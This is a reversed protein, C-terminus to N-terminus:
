CTTWWSPRTPFSSASSRRTRSTASTGCRSTRWRRRRTRRAGRAGSRQDARLHGSQAQAAHGVLGEAERQFIRGGRASRHTASPSDRHRDQGAHLCNGGADCRLVRPSRASDGALFGGRRETGPAPLDERRVGTRPPGRQGGSGLTQRRADARGGDRLARHQAADGLVLQGAEARLHDARRSHRPHPRDDAHGQVGLRPAEAGRAVEEPGRSHHGVGAEGAPGARHGGRRQLDARLAALAVGPRGKRRGRHHLCHRRAESRGRDPQHAGPRLGGKERIAKAAAQPVIGAEALTETAAVEVELWTRFKNEDSWIHGMEPRTYRAIM